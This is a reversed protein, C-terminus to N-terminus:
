LSFAANAWKVRSHSDFSKIRWQKGKDKIGQTTLCKHLESLESSFCLGIIILVAFWNYIDVTANMVNGDHFHSQTKVRQHTKKLALCKHQSAARISLAILKLHFLYKCIEMTIFAFAYIIAIHSYHMRTCLSEVNRHQRSHSHSSTAIWKILM